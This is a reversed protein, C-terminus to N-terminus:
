PRPGSSSASSSSESSSSDEPDPTAQPAEPARKGARWCSRCFDNAKAEALDRIPLSTTVNPNASCGGIRHLRRFGRKGSISVWFSAEEPAGAMQGSAGEADVTTAGESGLTAEFAADLDLNPWPQQLGLYGEETRKLIQVLKASRPDMGKELLYRHFNRVLDDEQIRRHGKAVASLIEEQIGLVAERAVAMFDNSQHGAAGWRGLFDRKGTEIGLSAAWTPLFHRESHESWFMQAPNELLRDASAEWYDSHEVRVPIRLETLLRRGLAAAEPYEAVAQRTSELDDSPRPLFYDRPKAFTPDTWIQFGALLWDRGSWSALRSVFVPVEWLGRGPGTTKSQVLVAELGRGTLLVWSPVM